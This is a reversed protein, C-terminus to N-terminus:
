GVTSNTSDMSIEILCIHLYTDNYAGVVFFLFNRSTDVTYSRLGVAVPFEPDDVIPACGVGCCDDLFIVGWVRANM